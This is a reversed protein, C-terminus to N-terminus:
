SVAIAVPAPVPDPRDTLDTAPRAALAPALYLRVLSETVDAVALDADPDPKAIVYSLFTRCTWEAAWRARDAPLFRELHPGLLDAAAAYVVEVSRFGLFPMVLEPEHDLVFGAADHDRLLRTAVVLGRTLADVLDDGSDVAEAVAHAYTAVERHALTAFVQSKGGPFVRYLTARSLGSEVAVDSLSTKGVGWRAVLTQAADLIRDVQDNGEVLTLDLDIGM